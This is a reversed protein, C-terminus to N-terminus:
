MIWPIREKGPQKVESRVTVETRLPTTHLQEFEIVEDHYHALVNSYTRVLLTRFERLLAKQQEVTALQWNRGAALRTM